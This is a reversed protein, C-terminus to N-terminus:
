SMGLVGTDVVDHAIDVLKRHTNQSAMRLLDFAQQRTVRHQAMLVGIAAGIERNSALARELHAIEARRRRSTILEAGFTSAALGAMQATDDFAGAETSYVNLAAALDDDDEFFLRYSLMSLVGTEESARRGFEPWRPDSRLDDTRYITEQVAADVCPGSRLEFQIQDVREALESTAAVSEFGKSSVCTIGASEAHPVVQLCSRTLTRLAEDNSASPELEAAL